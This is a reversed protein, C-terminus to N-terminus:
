GSATHNFYRRTRDAHSLELSSTDFIWRYWIDSTKARFFMQEFNCKLLHDTQVFKKASRSSYGNYSKLLYKTAALLCEKFELLPREFILMKKIVFKIDDFDNLCLFRKATGSITTELCLFFQTWSSESPAQRHAHDLRDSDSYRPIAYMFVPPHKARAETM